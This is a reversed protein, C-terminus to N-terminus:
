LIPVCPAGYLGPRRVTQFEARLSNVVTWGWNLNEVLARENTQETQRRYLPQPFLERKHASGERCRLNRVWASGGRGAGGVGPVRGRPSRSHPARGAATGVFNLRPPPPPQLAAPRGASPLTVGRLLRGRRWRGGGGGQSTGLIDVQRSGKQFRPGLESHM